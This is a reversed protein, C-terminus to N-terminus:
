EGGIIYLAKKRQKDLRNQRSEYQVMKKYAAEKTKETLTNEYLERYKDVLPTIDELSQNIYSLDIRAIEKERERKIRQLREKEAQKAQKAQEREAEIQRKQEAREIAAIRAQQKQEDRGARNYDFRPRTARKRARKRRPKIILKLIGYLGSILSKVLWVVFRFCCGLVIFSILYM